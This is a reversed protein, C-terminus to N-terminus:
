SLLPGYKEIRGLAGVLRPWVPPPSAAKPKPKKAKKNKSKPALPETKQTKEKKGEIPTKKKTPEGMVVLKPLPYNSFPPQRVLMLAASHMNNMSIDCFGTPFLVRTNRFEIHVECSLSFTSSTPVETYIANYPASHDMRM